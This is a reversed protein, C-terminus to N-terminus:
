LDIGKRRFRRKYWEMGGIAPISAAFCVIWDNITLPAFFFELGYPALIEQALPVYMLLYHALYILGILIVFIWTGPEKLSKSLPMNIRRIILVMTSEVILIVSLLMVTAKFPADVLGGYYGTLNEPYIPVIGGWGTLTLSYVAAAGLTMLFVNLIMFKGLNRTIIEQSDRPKDEMARPSTRDFVLALGPFSHTTVVLYLSQWQSLMNIWEPLIFLAGFFIISEFLNIAVYFYIMMRIKNFLGRGQHVGSVISAFSDDTIVLDAAEKAVDTGTIGMAIGADSMALALSDNVGDGTMAVVRKQDQYREVIVQKHEPNVRAFVNTRAFDDDSISDVDTGEVALSNETFIGLDQAITKATASADGTIMIVNIGASHCDQVAERVGDRPPDVICAFGLYILDNETQERAKKGTPVKNLHRYALSIVRYGKAAFDTTMERVRNAMDPAIKTPSEKGNVMTCKPLLVETAGKVFAVFKKGDKSVKSMRKLESEFPFEQVVEYKKAIAEEDIGSKRFMTLLAADTPDGLPRWITGQDPIEEEMIESDNNIGGCVVLRYLGKWKFIDEVEEEEISITAPDAAGKLLYIGGTPDYGDGKVSYLNHTDWIYKVTMQNRTMTGTKDSCIVSVRGLSEVASLDRIIVGKRAMALVGTLLVITTLLPINIPMITMARTIGEQARRLIHELGLEIPQGALFPSLYVQWFLSVVMLFIAAIGLYKALLNTKKRLPIDGTNLEGLTGQIKGIETMGGSATTGITAMGTSVYSGFFVMNRMDTIPADEAVISGDDKIAPVSEGTMSAEDTTLNSCNIIRADVPIRDGQELIVIDGPVAKMPPISMESGNRIIRAEGASLQELAELKKQARFQQVIAVLANVAVVGLWVMAQGMENQDSPPLLQAIIILAFSSIIYITILWNLIPAIYVKWFPGRVRPITNEGFQSVRSRVEEDSLGQKPDVQLAEYVDELPM